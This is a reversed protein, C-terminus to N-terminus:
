RQGNRKGGHSVVQRLAEVAAADDLTATVMDFQQRVARADVHEQGVAAILGDGCGAELAHGDKSTSPL